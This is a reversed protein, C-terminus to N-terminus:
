KGLCSENRVLAVVVWAAVEAVAASRMARRLQKEARMRLQIARTSVQLVQSTQHQQASLKRSLKLFKQLGIVLARQYM